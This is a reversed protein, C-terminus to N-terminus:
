KSILELFHAQKGGKMFLKVVLLQLQGVLISKLWVDRWHSHGYGKIISVKCPIHLHGPKNTSLWVEFIQSHGGWNLYLAVALM